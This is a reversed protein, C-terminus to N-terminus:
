IPANPIHMANKIKTDSPVRDLTENMEELVKHPLGGLSIDTNDSIESRIIHSFYDAVIRQMATPYSKWMGNEDTLNGSVM